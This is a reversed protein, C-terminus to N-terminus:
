GKSYPTSRAPYYERYKMYRSYVAFARPDKKAIQVLRPPILCLILVGVILALLSWFQIGLAILGLGTIVTVGMPEREGGGVLLPRTLAQFIPVPNKAM